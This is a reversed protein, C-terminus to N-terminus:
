AAIFRISGPSTLQFSSTDGEADLWEYLINQVGSVSLDAASTLVVTRSQAAATFALTETQSTNSGSSGVSFRVSVSGTGGVILNSVVLVSATLRQSGAPITAAQTIATAFSTTPDAICTAAPTVTITGIFRVTCSTENSFGSANGSRDFAQVRYFYTTGITANIDEYTNSLARNIETTAPSSTDRYVAFYAFDAPPTSTWSLSITGTINNTSCTLSTPVSPATPDGPVSGSFEDTFQSRTGNQRREQALGIFITTGTEIPRIIHPSTKSREYTYGSDGSKKWRIIYDMDKRTPTWSVTASGATSGDNLVFVGLVVTPTPPVKPKQNRRIDDDRQVRDYVSMEGQLFEYPPTEEAM